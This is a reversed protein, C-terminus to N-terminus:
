ESDYVITGYDVFLEEGKKIDRITEFYAGDNVSVINPQDSHNLFLSVDLAKFGHAPVFYKVEDFLCFNEVLAKSHGPLQEVEEFSLEVWEGEEKSFMTTCGQPIDVLAFVGIGHIASPKITVFTNSILEKLLEAKNMNCLKIEKGDKVASFMTGAM